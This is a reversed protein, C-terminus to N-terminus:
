GRLIPRTLCTPGGGGNIAVESGDFTHVECGRDALARATRDNGALMVAVGPRVALVNTALTEWEEEPVAVLDVERERLLEHLGSPLLPLYVVALDDAVPSILSLLHLCVSPGEGYPVDFLHVGGGVLAALQGAGARNTRLSRGICFTDRDLWFTDGGDATGPAVIRGAIPISEAEFWRGLAAEEGLRNPKGSRLLIAGRDTVLAPDFTYVLDPSFTEEGLERVRVGLRALLDCYADHQRQALALDVPRLFGHAREGFAAGFTPGPRKVLVERLPAVM